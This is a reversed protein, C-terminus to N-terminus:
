DLGSNEMSTQFDGLKQEDHGCLDTIGGIQEGSITVQRVFRSLDPHNAIELLVTLSLPHLLASLHEFFTTGFAVLSHDKFARCVKRVELLTDPDYDTLHEFIGEVLEPPLDLIRFPGEIAKARAARARGRTLVM